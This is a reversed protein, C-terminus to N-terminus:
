KSARKTITVPIVKYPPICVERAFSRTRHTFRSIEGTKKHEFGWAHIPKPQPKLNVANYSKKRWVKGSSWEVPAGIMGKAFQHVSQLWDGKKIKGETVAYYKDLDPSKM